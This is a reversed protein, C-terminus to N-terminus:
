WLSISCGFPSTRRHERYYDPIAILWRRRPWDVLYTNSWQVADEVTVHKHISVERDFEHWVAIESALEFLDPAVSDGLTEVAAEDPIYNWPSDLAPKHQEFKYEPIYGYKARLRKRLDRRVKASTRVDLLDTVGVNSRLGSTAVPQTQIEGRYSESVHWYYPPEHSLALVGLEAHDSVLYVDVAPLKFETMDSTKCKFAAESPNEPIVMWTASREFTSIWSEIRISNAEHDFLNWYYDNFRGHPMPTKPFNKFNRRLRRILEIRARSHESEDAYDADWGKAQLYQRLM